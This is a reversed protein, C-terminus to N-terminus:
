WTAAPLTENVEGHLNDTGPGAPKPYHGRPIVPILVLCLLPVQLLEISLHPSRVGDTTKIWVRQFSYSPIVFGDESDSASMSCYLFPKSPWLKLFLCFKLRKGM